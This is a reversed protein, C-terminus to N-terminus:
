GCGCGAVGRAEGASLDDPGGKFSLANTVHEAIGAAGDQGDVVSQAFIGDAVDQDAMFLARCMGGVAVRAGGALDADDDGGGAGGGGIKDGANGGGHHVGHGQDADGALNRGLQEAGIGELLNVDGADGQGDGLVVVDDGSGCSIAGTSRSAKRM